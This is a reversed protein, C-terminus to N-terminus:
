KWARIWFIESAGLRRRLAIARMRASSFDLTVPKAPSKDSV